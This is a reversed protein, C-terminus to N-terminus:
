SKKTLKLITYIIIIYVLGLSVPLYWIGIGDAQGNANQVTSFSLFGFNVILILNLYRIMKTAYTYQRLANEETIKTPYNFIHPYRNLITLGVFFITAIIPFILVNAKGGFGDVEGAFNFHTPIIDPLNNYNVITFVWIALVSIWNIIEIIRGISTLKLKIRPREKINM